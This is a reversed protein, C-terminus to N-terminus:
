VPTILGIIKFNFSTLANTSLVYISGSFLIVGTLILKFLISKQNSKIHTTIGVFFLLFAHYMQYRIGTNFSEFALISLFPKLGHAAFAGLVVGVGGMFSALLLIKRDM